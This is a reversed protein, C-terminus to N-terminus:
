FERFTEKVVPAINRYVRDIFKMSRLLWRVRRYEKKSANIPREIIKVAMFKGSDVDIAKHVAGFM